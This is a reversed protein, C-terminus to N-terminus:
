TASRWAYRWSNAGTGALAETRAAEARGNVDQLYLLVCAACLLGSAIGIAMTKKRRM